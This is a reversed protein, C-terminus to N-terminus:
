PELARDRAGPGPSAQHDRKASFDQWGRGIERLMQPYVILYRFPRIAAMYAIGLLGNPKVLVAMQGRYGGDPGAIWGIHLVGHVTRNAMEAAWEDPLLYLSRFPAGHFDPGRPAARLDPPLRDRLSPLRTGVGASTTDLRAMRGLATRAAWLAGALIAGASTAPERRAALWHVLLDLDDPGGRVPLAWVDELRFDPVVEHIRWPRSTHAAPQLKM